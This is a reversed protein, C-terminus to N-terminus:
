DTALTSFQCKETQPWPRLGVRKQRHDPGYALVVSIEDHSVAFAYILVVVTGGHGAAVLSLGATKKRWAIDAPLFLPLFSAPFCSQLGCLHEIYQRLPHSEFGRALNGQGDSKSDAGNHGSRYREWKLLPYRVLKDTSQENCFCTLICEYGRLVIVHM